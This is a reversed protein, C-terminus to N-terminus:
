LSLVSYHIKLLNWSFDRILEVISLLCLKPLFSLRHTNIFLFEAELFNINVRLIRWLLFTSNIVPSIGAANCVLLPHHHVIFMPTHPPPSTPPLYRATMTFNYHPFDHFPYPLQCMQYNQNSKQLPLPTISTHSEL